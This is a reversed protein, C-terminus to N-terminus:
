REANKVNRKTEQPQNWGIYEGLVHLINFALVEDAPNILM